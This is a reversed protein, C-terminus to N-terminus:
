RAAAAPAQQPRTAILMVGLLAVVGAGIGVYLMTNDKKDEKEPKNAALIAMIMQQTQAQNQAAYKMLDEETLSSQSKGTAAATLELMKKQFEANMATIQSEGYEKALDLGISIAKTGLAIGAKKLDAEYDYKEPAAPTTTEQQPGMFNPDYDAGLGGTGTGWPFAPWVTEVPWRTGVGKNMKALTLIMLTKLPDQKAGAAVLQDKLDQVSIIGVTTNLMKKTEVVAPNTEDTIGVLAMAAKLNELNQADVAADGHLSAKVRPHVIQCPINCCTLCCQLYDLAHPEPAAIKGSKLDTMLECMAWLAASDRKVDTSGYCVIHDAIAKLAAEVAAQQNSRPLDELTLICYNWSEAPIVHGHRSCANIIHHLVAKTYPKTHSVGSMKHATACNQQNRYRTMAPSEPASSPVGFILSTSSM